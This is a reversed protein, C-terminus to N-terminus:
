EHLNEKLTKLDVNMIEDLISLGNIFENNTLQKYHKQNFNIYNLKIENSVFLKENLYNKGGQGSLYENGQHFKILQIIKETSKLNIKSHSSFLFNKNINLLNCIENIIYFNIDILKTFEKDELKFFFNEYKDFFKAKKYNKKIFNIFNKEMKQM